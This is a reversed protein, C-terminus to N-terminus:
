TVYKAFAAVFADAARREVVAGHAVVIREFPWQMVARLTKRVRPRDRLLLRRSNRTPGFGRPMGSLRFALRDAARGVDVLNSAVDTLVLTRSARHFFLVESLGRDPGLVVFPLAERWRPAADATLEAALPFGPVRRSLGPAVYLAAAPHRRRWAPAHLYHFSSPAVIAAVTGLREVDPTVDAPPSVIALRGDGIDLVTSASPLRAGALLVRRDIVWAGPAIARPPPLFSADPKPVVFRLLRDLVGSAV